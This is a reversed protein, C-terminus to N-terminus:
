HRGEEILRRLSTDGLTVGRRLERIKAAVQGPHRQVSDELPVLRAVPVGYKTTTIEKGRQVRAVLESLSTKAELLGIKRTARKMLSSQYWDARWIFLGVTNRSDPCMAPILEMAVTYPILVSDTV